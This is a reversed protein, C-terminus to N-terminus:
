GLIRSRNYKAAAGMAAAHVMKVPVNNQQALSRCDEYEPSINVVREGLRAVKVRVVGFQTQVEHIDRQLMHRTVEYTRAGITTSEHFLIALLENVESPHALVQLLTGPRHKKMQAPIVLVDQAGAALLQEMLPEFLQPNMDDINAEIVVAKGVHYGAENQPAAHQEPHPSRPARLSTNTVSQPSTNAIEGLFARLVNPFERDRSGAGYGVRSVNMTPMAGFSEALTTVIAAGTPTVLEGRAETTYTPVGLILQATAPAPIPYLGHSMRVFGSGLHLPSAVVRGIGLQTIGIAAGVIDVIADIGGVEHFHVADLPIGHVEAEADGLRRFIRSATAKVSAALESREILALIDSLARHPHEHVEEHGHEEEPQLDAVKEAGGGTLIVKFQMAQLGLKDVRSVEIRYGDLRLKGLERELTAPELGIDILAGLTMDGSIGAFCDLYLTKM